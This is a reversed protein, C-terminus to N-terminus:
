EDRDSFSWDDRRAWAAGVFIPVAGVAVVLGIPVGTAVAVMAGVAVSSGLLCTRWTPWTFRPGIM